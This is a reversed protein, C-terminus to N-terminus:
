ADQEGDKRARKLLELFYSHPVITYRLRSCKVRHKEEFYRLSEHYERCTMDREYAFEIGAPDGDRDTCFWSEIMINNDNGSDIFKEFTEEPYEVGPKPIVWEYTSCDRYVVDAM